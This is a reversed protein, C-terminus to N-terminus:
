EGFVFNCFISFYNHFFVQLYSTRKTPKNGIQIVVYVRTFRRYADTGSDGANRGGLYMCIYNEM